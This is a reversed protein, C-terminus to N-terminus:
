SVLIWGQTADSYMLGGSYNRLDVEVDESLGMIKSSNRAITLWYSDFTRGYDAFWVTDGQSPSAPMTMTFVGGSTDLFYRVGSEATFNATKVTGNLDLLRQDAANIWDAGDYRYQKNNNDTEFWISGVVEGQGSPEADQYFSIVNATSSVVIDVTIATTAETGVSDIAKVGFRWTGDAVERTTFTVAALGSDLVTGDAWVESTLYYRVEYRTVDSDVSATWNLYVDGAANSGALGTANTPATVKGDITESTSAATSQYLLNFAVVYISYTIGEKLPGTSIETEATSSAWVMTAGNKVTVSYGTVVSDIPATWSIDIRSAYETNNLQYLTENASLGTPIGPTISAPLDGDTYTPDSVVSNSYAAPDYETGVLEWRGPTVQVPDDSIRLKKATLGYPHTMTVIDGIELELGEDFMRWRVELDSLTLKNLRETAERQAQSHRDIGPLSVQSERIPTTGADVGSAKVAECLRERWIDGSTDTYSVRMVTPINSSDKKVIVLSGEEIDATTLTMVSSGAKDPVFYVTDGRYALFVSAYARLAEVLTDTDQPENVVFSSQRRIETPTTDDCYDQADELTTDDVTYGHGYVTSSLLDGLHLAPNASYITTSTKPNWVKKGEVEAIITPFSSYDDDSYEIVIYAIGVNGDPHTIVLTDSYSGIAASLKPDATQSTTGTYKTVSVGAVAAEGNVWVDVYSEIEGLCIIYGVTWVGSSYNLAFINRNGTIQCHGYALPIARNEASINADIESFPSSVSNIDAVSPVNAARKAKRTARRIKRRERYRQRQEPTMARVRKKRAKKREKRTTM